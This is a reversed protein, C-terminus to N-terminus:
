SACGQFSIHWGAPVSCPNPFVFCEGTAPNTGYAVIDICEAAQTPAQPAILCLLFALGVLAIRLKSM